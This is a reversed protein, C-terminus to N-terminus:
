RSSVDIGKPARRLLLLLVANVAVFSIGVALHFTMPAYQLSTAFRRILDFANRLPPLTMLFTGRFGTAPAIGALSFLAAALAVIALAGGALLPWSRHRAGEWPALPLGGGVPLSRGSEVSPAATLIARDVQDLRRVVAQCDACAQLHAEHDAPDDLYQQCEPPKM